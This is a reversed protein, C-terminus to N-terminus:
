LPELIYEFGDVTKGANLVSDSPTQLELVSVTISPKDAPAGMGSLNWLMVETLQDGSVYTRITDRKDVGNKRHYSESYGLPKLCKVVHNNLKDWSMSKNVGVMWVKERSDRTKTGKAGLDIMASDPITLEAIPWGAPTKGAPGSNCGSLIVLSLMTICAITVHIRLTEGM